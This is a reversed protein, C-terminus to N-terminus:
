FGYVSMLKYALTLADINDGYVIAGTHADAVIDAKPRFFEDM